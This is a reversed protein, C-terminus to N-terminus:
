MRIHTGPGALGDLETDANADAASRPLRTPRAAASQPALVGLDLRLRRGCVGWTDAYVHVHVRCSKRSAPSRREERLACSVSPFRAGASTPGSRLAGVDGPGARREHPLVGARCRWVGAGTLRKLPASALMAVMGSTDAWRVSEPPAGRCGWLLPLPRRSHLRGVLKEGESFILVTMSPTEGPRLRPRMSWGGQRLPMTYEQRVGHVCRGVTHAVGYPPSRRRSAVAPICRCREQFEVAGSSPQWPARYYTRGQWCWEPNNVMHACPKEPGVETCGVLNSDLGSNVWRTSSPVGTM